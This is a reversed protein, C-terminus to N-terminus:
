FLVRWSRIILYDILMFGFGDESSFFLNGDVAHHTKRNVRTEDLAVYRRMFDSRNEYFAGLVTTCTDDSHSILGCFVSAPGM